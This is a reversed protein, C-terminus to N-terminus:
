RRTGRLLRDPACRAEAVTSTEGALGFVACRPFAAVLAVGLPRVSVRFLAFPFEYRSPVFKITLLASEGHVPKKEGEGIHSHRMGEVGSPPQSKKPKKPEVFVSKM